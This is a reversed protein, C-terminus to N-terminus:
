EEIVYPSALDGNEDLIGARQLFGRALDPDSACKDAYALAEPPLIPEREPPLEQIKYPAM